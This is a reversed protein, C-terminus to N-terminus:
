KFAKISSRLSLEKPYPSLFKQNLIYGENFRTAYLQLVKIVAILPITGSKFEELTQLLEKKEEKDILNKFYGYIHVLVNYTNAITGKQSIAELFQGKYEKLVAELEKKEHNAVIKGLKKYFIHSKSYILYKYSTHFKVLDDFSPNKALFDFLDKYAFIQMLFNEKLWADGLRGEEEIPLLPFRKQLEKAFLGVGDSELPMGDPEYVKVRELGCTPSKSKLVFGCLEDKQIGWAMSSSVEQLRKTVDVGGKVRKVQVNGDELVLRIPERPTGFVETEPCFPIFEFYDGLEDVLFKDKKHGGDYRCKEGLLCSSVGLKM